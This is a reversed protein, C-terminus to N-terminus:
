KIFQERSGALGQKIFQIVLLLTGFVGLNKKIVICSLLPPHHAQPPCLDYLLWM